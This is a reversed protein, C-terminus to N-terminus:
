LSVCKLLLIILLNFKFQKLVCVRLVASNFGASFTPLLYVVKLHHIVHNRLVHLAFKKLHICSIRRSFVRELFYFKGDTESTWIPMM